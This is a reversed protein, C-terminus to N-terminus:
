NRLEGRSRPDQCSPGICSFSYHVKAFNGKGIMRGFNYKHSINHLVCVKRLHQMWETRSELSNCYFVQNGNYGYLKFGYSNRYDAVRVTNKYHGRCARAAPEEVVSPVQAPGPKSELESPRNSIVNHRVLVSKLLRCRRQKLLGGRRSTFLLDGEFIPEDPGTKVYNCPTWQFPCPAETQEELIDFFSKFKESSVDM